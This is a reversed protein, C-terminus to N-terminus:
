KTLLTEFFKFKAPSGAVTIPGTKDGVEMIKPQEDIAAWRALGRGNPDGRAACPVVHKPARWRLNGVPPAAFPIGKFATISPDEGPVGSVIGGEVKVPQSIAAALSGVALIAIGVLKVSRM